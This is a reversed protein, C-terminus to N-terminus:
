AVAGLLPVASLCEACLAWAEEQEDVVLLGAIPAEVNGCGHCLLLSDAYGAEACVAACTEAITAVDRALRVQMHDKSM